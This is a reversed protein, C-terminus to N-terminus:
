MLDGTLTNLMAIKLFLQSNLGEVIEEFAAQAIIQNQPDITAYVFAGTTPDITLDDGYQFAKAKTEYYGSDGYRQTSLTALINNLTNTFEQLTNDVTIGLGEAIKNILAAASPNLLGLAALNGNIQDTTLGM